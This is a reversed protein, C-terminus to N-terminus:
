FQKEFDELVDSYFRLWESMVGSSHASVQGAEQALHLRDLVRGADFGTEDADAPAYADLQELVYIVGDRTLPNELFMQCHDCHQPCDAEGGGDPFPGQPYKDSDKRYSFSVNGHETAVRDLKTQTDKACSECLLAAQFIYANM